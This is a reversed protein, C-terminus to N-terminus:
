GNKLTLRIAVYSNEKKKKLLYNQMMNKSTSIEKMMLGNLFITVNTIPNNRM